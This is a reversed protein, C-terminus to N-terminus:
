ELVGNVWESLKGLDREGLFERARKMLDDVGDSMSLRTLFAKRVYYWYRGVDDLRYYCASMYLYITDMMRQCRGKKAVQEAQKLLIIGYELEGRDVWLLGEYVLFSTRICATDHLGEYKELEKLSRHIIAEVTGMDLIFLIHRVMFIELYYHHDQRSLQKWM